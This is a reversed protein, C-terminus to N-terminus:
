LASRGDRFVRPRVAWGAAAVRVIEDVRKAAKAKLAEDELVWALPIVGDLRYPARERREPDGGFWHIRAM